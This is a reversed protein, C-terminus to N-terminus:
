TSRYGELRDWFGRRQLNSGLSIVYRVLVDWSELRMVKRVPWWRESGMRLLLRVRRSRWVLRRRAALGRGRLTISSSLDPRVRLPSLFSKIFSSGCMGFTFTCLLFRVIFSSSFSTPRHFTISYASHSLRNGIVFASTILSCAESLAFEDYHVIYKEVTHYQPQVTHMYVSKTLGFCM